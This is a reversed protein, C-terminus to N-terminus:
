TASSHTRWVTALAWVSFVGVGVAEPGAIWRGDSLTGWGIWSIAHVTGLGITTLGGVARGARLDGVGDVFLAFTLALYFGVAVFYHYPQPTPFVGVLVVFGAAVGFLLLGVREIGPASRRWLGAVFGVGMLGSAMLAGNFVPASPRGARGLDSLANESVSFWPALSLAGLMGGVSVLVAGLGLLSVLRRDDFM